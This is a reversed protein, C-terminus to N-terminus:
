INLRYNNLCVLRDSYAWFRLERYEGTEKFLPYDLYKDDFNFKVGYHEEM